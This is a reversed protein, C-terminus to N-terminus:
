FNVYLLEGGETIFVARVDPYKELLSASKEYGLLFCLTSFADCQTSSECLITVQSLETKAPYGTETSLIHYYFQGDKEFYREYNGSSVISSDSAELTLASTGTQAFPKQIGIRFPTGDPKNGITLVNGGLNILASTVGESQLYEKLKDAIFGKAIFGLDIQAEPDNLTIYNGSIELNNYNVHSLATTIEAETPVIGQNASGFNWLQSLTGITPDVLGDYLRAYETASSLLSATDSNVLVKAGRSHNLNWIDSEPINPSLLKEYYDALEMCQRLLPQASQEDRFGYLTITIVTDYYFGTDSFSNNRAAQQCGSLLVTIPIFLFFIIKTFMKKIHFYCHM